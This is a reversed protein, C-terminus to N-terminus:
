FRAKAVCDEPLLTAACGCKGCFLIVFDNNAIAVRFEHGGSKACLSVVASAFSDRVAIAKKLQESVGDREKELREARKKPTEIM